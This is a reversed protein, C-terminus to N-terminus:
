LEHGKESVPNRLLAPAAQFPVSKRSKSLNLALPGLAEFFYASPIGGDIDANVRKTGSKQGHANSWFPTFDLSSNDDVAFGEAGVEGQQTM